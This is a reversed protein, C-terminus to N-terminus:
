DKEHYLDPREPAPVPVPTGRQLSQICADAVVLSMYGNWASTGPFRQELQISRVWARVEALYADQFRAIWDTPVAVSRTHRSRVLATDPQTTVATGREAVIEATVEYGYEAAVFVEVTALCNGSLSMQMLLLDLTEDSFSAHTRVGRVYVENVEQGLLWRTSDIDHIASNTVVVPGPLHPPIMPNRHVGKFVIARGIEGSEVVHRVALHQPDFRRMFGVAVLRRGVAQEAEVIELADAATTALPKECLVPKNHQLCAHVFAAHTADPSAIVVADVSHDQILHLPDHFVQAAGCAAAVQSARERDLDYVAAVRAGGVHRHLNEAHRTGMGGTGIVGVAIDAM